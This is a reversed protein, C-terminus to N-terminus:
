AGHGVKRSRMTALTASPNLSIARKFANIYTGGVSTRDKESIVGLHWNATPVAGIFKTAVCTLFAAIQVLTPEDLLSNAINAEGPPPLFKKGRGRRGGQETRINVLSSAFSVSTPGLEGVNTPVATAVFLDTKTPALMQADCQVLRYDSTVAPLLETVACELMAQALLLLADSWADFDVFVETSAVHWVNICAQGHLEGVIRVQAITQPVIPPM